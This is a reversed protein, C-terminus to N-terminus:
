AGSTAIIAGIQPPDVKGEGVLRMVDSYSLQAVDRSGLWLQFLGVVILAIIFYGINFGHKKDM